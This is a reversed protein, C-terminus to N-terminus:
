FTVYFNNNKEAEATRQCSKRRPTGGQWIGPPPTAQSPILSTDRCCPIARWIAAEWDMCAPICIRWAEARSNFCSRRWASSVLGMSSSNGSAEGSARSSPGSPSAQFSRSSPQFSNVGSPRGDASAAARRSKMYSDTTAGSDRFVWKVSWACCEASVPRARSARNRSISARSSRPKRVSDGCSSSSRSHKLM